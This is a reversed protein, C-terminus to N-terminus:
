LTVAAHGLTHTGYGHGFVFSLGHQAKASRATVEQVSVPIIKELYAPSVHWPYSASGCAPTAGVSSSQEILPDAVHAPLLWLLLRLIPRLIRWMAHFELFVFPVKEDRILQALVNAVEDCIRPPL